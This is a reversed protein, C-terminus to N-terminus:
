CRGTREQLIQIQGDLFADKMSDRLYGIISERNIKPM